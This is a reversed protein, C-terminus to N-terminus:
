GQVHTPASTLQRVMSVTMCLPVHYMSRPASVRCRQAAQRIIKLLFGTVVPLGIFCISMWQTHTSTHAM